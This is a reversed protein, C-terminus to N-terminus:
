KANTTIECLKQVVITYHECCLEIYDSAKWDHDTIAPESYILEKLHPLKKALAAQIAKQKINTKHDLIRLKNQKPRIRTQLGDSMKKANKRSQQTGLIIIKLWEAILQGVTYKETNM